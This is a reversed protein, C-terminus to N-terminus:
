RANWTTYLVLGTCVWECYQVLAADYKHACKEQIRGCYKGGKSQPACVSHTSKNHFQPHRRRSHIARWGETTILMDIRSFHKLVDLPVMREFRQQHLFTTAIQRWQQRYPSSYRNPKMGGGRGGRAMNGLGVGLSTNFHGYM